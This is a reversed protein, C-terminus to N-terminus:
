RPISQFLKFSQCDVASLYHIKAGLISTGEPEVSGIFSVSYEGDVGGCYQTANIPCPRTCNFDELAGYESFRKPFYM